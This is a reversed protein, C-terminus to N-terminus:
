VGMNGVSGGISIITGTNNGQIFTQEDIPNQRPLAAFTYDPFAIVGELVVQSTFNFEM